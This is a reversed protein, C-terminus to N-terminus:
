FLHEKWQAIQSSHSPHRLPAQHLPKHCPQLNLLATPHQLAKPNHAGPSRLCRGGGGGNTVQVNFVKVLPYTSLGPIAVKLLLGTRKSLFTIVKSVLFFNSYRLINCYYRDALFVKKLNTIITIEVVNM